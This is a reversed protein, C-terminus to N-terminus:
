ENVKSKIYDIVEKSERMDCTEVACEIYEWYQDYLDNLLHELMQRKRNM